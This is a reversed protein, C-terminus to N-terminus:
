ISNVINSLNKNERLMKEFREASLPKSFLYGQIMECEYSRLISLQEEQEVGEAVVKLGLNHAINIIASIMHRDVSSTAIGDIFAKDIKLTNLPFQKLYALSSYGTGFDDLALHIGRERLREMLMLSEDPHQMLTGETIECELHLPSLGTQKLIKTIRDDLDPLEFQRASINIAVRGTFLGEKVWRQTDKCAKRLVMEGIQIIQGTQEALPIFQNPSVIGKEPHEFRVLAEMSILKGTIVDVKPQYYVTFLDEKLGHRILNEIQLQRVAHQNMEGSFFQYRHGGSNKAFYMATDANKLLEQPSTGDGPFFALGVSAGLVFEQKNIIFPRAVEDLIFQAFHTIRHIDTTKDVLISFEDGGLRYCTANNGTLKQLRSAIQKILLDGTQHGMSDNIKKFNDIDLCLLAHNTNKRVLNDHSAQFFSRNPLNTLPDTNALKLLEKETTKRDTIDSMVGVFHTIVGDETKIADINLSIEFREGNVRSSEIEGFWNGKHILTKKVEETFAEPYQYFRLYSALAQERTNGTHRCYSENVSVFRFHHDTIFVGDSITEISKRYLKLQEESIKQADINKITGTMRLPQAEDNWTVVRGRDLVWVWEDKFNKIRYSASFNDSIGSLHENLATALREIDEPHINREYSSFARIDDQPFDMTGWTNSRHVEKATIDWDWLEDGSSWLTLKLREESDELLKQSLRKANYQKLWYGFTLLIFATYIAIAKNNLWFPPEIIISLSRVPSWPGDYSRAQLQFEYKGFDLNTYTAQRLESTTELWNGDSGVLKYRYSIANPELANISAFEITFPSADNNLIIESSRNIPKELPSDVSDTTVIKNFIRFETLEPQPTVVNKRSDFSNTEIGHFGNNGGVLIVGDSTIVGAGENLNNFNLLPESISRIVRNTSSDIQSVSKSDVAWVYKSDALVNILSNSSLKSKDTFHEEINLNPKSLKLLGNYYTSAWFAENTEAVANFSASKDGLNIILQNFQQTKLNYKSLGLNTSLWLEHNSDVYLPRIRTVQNNAIPIKVHKGTTINIGTLNPSESSLWSIGDNVVVIDFEHDPFYNNQLLLEEGQLIYEHVGNSTALWIHDDQDIDLDWINYSQNKLFHEYRGTEPSYRNVGGNQTAIWLFGKSDEDISWIMKGSLGFKYSPNPKFHKINSNLPNYFNIGNNYTGLWITKNSDKFVKNIFPQSLSTQFSREKDILITSQTNIDLISIGHETGIWLTHENELDITRVWNSVLPPSSKSHYYTEVLNEKNLVIVGKETALWYEEGIVKMDHLYDAIFGKETNADGKLPSLNGTEKDLIYIGYGYTGVWIREEEALIFIVEQPFLTIENYVQEFRNSNPTLTYFGQAGAALLSGDEMQTLAGIKNTAFGNNDANFIDFNDKDPNYRGLGNHTVVWLAGANDIFLQRVFQDPLSSPIDPSHKYQKFKYGDYRNLGDFTAIWIYGDGDEAIDTISDSSLGDATTLNKFQIDAISTNAEVPM